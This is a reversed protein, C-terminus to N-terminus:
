RRKRAERRVRELNIIEAVQYRTVAQKENPCRRLVTPFHGMIGHLYALLAAALVSHGPLVAVIPLTQWERASLNCGSLLREVQGVFLEQDDFDAPAEIVREVAAGALEEVCALQEGTLPHSFNILIM